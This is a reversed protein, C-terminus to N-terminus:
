IESGSAEITLAVPVEYAAGASLSLRRVAPAFGPQRVMVECQGVRLYPFRFRGERDTTTLTSLNTEVQRAVVPTGEVAAGAPDTVRGSVSAFNVSEQASLGLASM